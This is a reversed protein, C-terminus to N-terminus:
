EINILDVKEDWKELVNKISQSIFETNKTGSFYVIGIKDAM